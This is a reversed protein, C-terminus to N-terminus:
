PLRRRQVCFVDLAKEAVITKLETIEQMLKKLLESKSVAMCDSM